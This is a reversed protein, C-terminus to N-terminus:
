RLRQVPPSLFHGAVILLAGPRTFSGRAVENLTAEHTSSHGRAALLARNPM